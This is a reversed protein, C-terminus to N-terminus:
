WDIKVPVWETQDVPNAQRPAASCEDGMCCNERGICVEGSDSEPCIPVRRLLTGDTDYINVLEGNNSMAKVKGNM